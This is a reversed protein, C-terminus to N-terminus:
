PEKKGTVFIKLRIFPKIRDHLTELEGVKIEYKIISNRNIIKTSGLLCRYSITSDSISIKFFLLWIYFPIVGILPLLTNHILLNLHEPSNFFGIISLAGWISGFTIYAHRGAKITHM